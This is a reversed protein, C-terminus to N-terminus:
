KGTEDDSHKVKGDDFQFKEIDGKIQQGQAQKMVYTVTVSRACPTKITHRRRPHTPPSFNATTSEEKGGRSETQIWSVSLRRLSRVM